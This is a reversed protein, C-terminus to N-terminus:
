YGGNVEIQQLTTKAMSNKMFYLYYYNDRYYVARIAPKKGWLVPETDHPTGLLTRVQEYEMGCKVVKSGIKVEEIRKLDESRTKKEPCTASTRVSGLLLVTLVLAGWGLAHCTTRTM